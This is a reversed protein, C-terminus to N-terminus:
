YRADREKLKYTPEEPAKRAWAYVTAFVTVSNVNSFRQESSRRIVNLESAAEGLTYLVNKEQRGNFTKLHKGLVPTARHRLSCPTVAM